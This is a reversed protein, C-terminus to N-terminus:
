KLTVNHFYDSFQALSIQGKCFRESLPIWVNLYKIPFYYSNSVSSFLIEYGVPVVLMKKNSTDKSTLTWINNDKKSVRKFYMIGITEIPLYTRPTNIYARTYHTRQVPIGLDYKREPEIIPKIGVKICVEELELSEFALENLFMKYEQVQKQWHQDLMDTGPIPETKQLCFNASEAVIQAKDCINQLSKVKDKQKNLLANAKKLKAEEQLQKRFIDLESM